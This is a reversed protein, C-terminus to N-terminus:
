STDNLTGPFGITAVVLGYVFYWYPFVNPTPLLIAISIFRAWSSPRRSSITVYHNNMFFFNGSSCFFEHGIFVAFIFSHYTLFLLLLWLNPNPYFFWFADLLSCGFLFCFMCNSLPLLHYKLFIKTFFYIKM